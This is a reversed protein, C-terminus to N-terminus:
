RIDPINDKLLKVIHWQALNYVGKMNYVSVWDAGQILSIVKDKIDERNVKIYIEKAYHEGDLIPKGVSGWACIRLDYDLVTKNKLRVESILVDSLKKKFEKSLPRQNLRGSPPRKYINFVCSIPRGSFYHRGVDESYVLDFEYFMKSNNLQSLPLLFAIYDSIQAAKKYFLVASNLRSGYPPNGFIVRNRVYPIELRLFDAQRIESTEPKIDYADCGPILQSFSGDGACPDLFTYDSSDGLFNLLISVCRQALYEPTHYKDHEIKGNLGSKNRHNKKM